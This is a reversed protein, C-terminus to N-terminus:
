DRTLRSVFREARVTIFFMAWEAGVFSVPAGGAVFAVIRRWLFVM